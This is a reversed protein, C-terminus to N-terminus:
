ACAYRPPFCEETERGPMASAHPEGAVIVALILDEGHLRKFRVIEQEVWASRAVAPSCLVILYASRGLADQVRDALHADASLEQRDRFIPTFRKPAPGHV